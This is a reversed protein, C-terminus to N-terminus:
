MIQSPFGSDVIWQPHHWERASIWFPLSKSTRLRHTVAGKDRHTHTHAHEHM